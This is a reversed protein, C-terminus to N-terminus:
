NSLYSCSIVSGSYNMFCRLFRNYEASILCYSNNSSDEIFDYYNIYFNLLFGGIYEGTSSNLALINADLSNSLKSFCIIVGKQENNKLMIYYPDYTIM